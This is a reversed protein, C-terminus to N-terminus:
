GRAHAPRSVRGRGELSVGSREPSVACPAHRLREVPGLAGVPVL